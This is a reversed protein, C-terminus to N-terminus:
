LRHPPYVLFASGAALPEESLPEDSLPEDSLPVESLFDGSFFDDSLPEEFGVGAALEEEYARAGSRRRRKGERTGGDLPARM